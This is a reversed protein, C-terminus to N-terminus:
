QRRLFHPLTSAILVIAVISFAISSIDWALGMQTRALTSLGLAAAGLGIRQLAPATPSTANRAQFWLVAGGVFTIIGLWLRM